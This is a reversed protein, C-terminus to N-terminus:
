LLVRKEWGRGRGRGNDVCVVVKETKAKGEIL